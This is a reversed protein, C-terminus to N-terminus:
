KITFGDILDMFNSLVNQSNDNLLSLTFEPYYEITTQMLRDVIIREGKRVHGAYSDWENPSYRVLMSLAYSLIFFIICQNLTLRMGNNSIYGLSFYYSKQIKQLVGINQLVFLGNYDICIIGDNRPYWIKGKYDPDNQNMQETALTLVQKCEEHLEGVVNIKLTEFRISGPECLITRSERQYVAEYEQKLYPLLSLLLDIKINENALDSYGFSNLLAPIAGKGWINVSCEALNEGKIFGAGHVKIHEKVSESGPLRVSIICRTLALLGYYVLLPKTYITAKLAQQLYEEAQILSFGILSTRFDKEETTLYSMMELVRDCYEPIQFLRLHRWVEQDLM